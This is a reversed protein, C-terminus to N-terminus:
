FPEVTETTETKDDDTMGLRKLLDKAANYGLKKQRSNM